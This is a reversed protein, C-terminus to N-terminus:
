TLGIKQIAPPTSRLARAMHVGRRAAHSRAGNRVKLARFLSIRDRGNRRPLCVAMTLVREVCADALASSDLTGVARNMSLLDNMWEVGHLMQEASMSTITPECITSHAVEQDASLEFGLSKLYDIRAIRAALRQRDLGRATAGTEYAWLEGLVEPVIAYSGLGHLNTWMRFDEAPAFDSEFALESERIPEMRLMTTSTAFVNRFALTAQIESNSLPYRWYANAFLQRARSIQSSAAYNAWAGVIVVRPDRLAVRLQREIRSPASWDDADLWAIFNGRAERLLRNRTAALGLNTSNSLLRIRRDAFQRVHDVTSDTSGDDVILIEFNAHTQALASGIARKITMEGNFVPIAITVLPNTKPINNAM